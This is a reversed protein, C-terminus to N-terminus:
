PMAPTCGVLSLANGECNLRSKCFAAVKDTKPGQMKFSSHADDGRGGRPAEGEKRKHESAVSHFCSACTDLRRASDHWHVHSRTHISEAIADSLM